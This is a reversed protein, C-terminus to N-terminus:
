GLIRYITKASLRYRKALQEVTAGSQSLDKIEQNRKDYDNSPMTLREGGFNTILAYVVAQATQEDGVVSAVVRRMEQIIGTM